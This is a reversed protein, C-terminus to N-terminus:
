PGVHGLEDALLKVMRLPPCAGYLSDLGSYFTVAVTQALYCDIYYPLDPERSGTSIRM